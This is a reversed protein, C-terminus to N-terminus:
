EKWDFVKFSETPYIGKVLGAEYDAEAYDFDHNETLCRPEDHKYLLLDGRLFDGVEDRGLEDIWFVEERTAHRFQNEGLWGCFDHLRWAKGEDGEVRLPHPLEADLTLIQNAFIVKDGAKFKPTKKENAKDVRNSLVEDISEKMIKDAQVKYEPNNMAKEIFKMPKTPIPEGEVELIELGADFDMGREESIEKLKDMVEKSIVIKPIWKFIHINWYDGINEGYGGPEPEIATLEVEFGADKIYQLDSYAQMFSSHKRNEITKKVMKESM